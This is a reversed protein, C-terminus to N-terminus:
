ECEVTLTTVVKAEGAQIAGIDKFVHAGVKQEAAKMRTSGGDVNIPLGGITIRVDEGELNASRSVETSTVTVFKGSNSYLEIKADMEGRRNDFRITGEDDTVKIGCVAPVDATFTMEGGATGWSPTNGAFASSAFIAATAAILLTKKM